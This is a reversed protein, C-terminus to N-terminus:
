SAGELAGAVGAFSTDPLATMAGEEPRSIWESVTLEPNAVAQAFEAASLKGSYLLQRPASGLKDEFYAAAVAVGHQIEAARQAPDEPLDLIRYLLLDQGNAICTTLTLSALNAALVAEMDGLNELAALSSALVAGPEYGATRVAAEYEALVPGPIVAALAKCETPSQALVQYSVGAEEVDFPVVKRLRFRILSIAESDKTPLSDFDLIFIRILPDPLVVTVTHTHPSVQALASRIAASLAEPSRLNPEELSSIVAGAPLPAFAYIAAQGPLSKGRRRILFPRAAALVGEPTIEIAAPPRGGRPIIRISRISSLISPM